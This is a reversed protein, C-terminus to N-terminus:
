TQYLIFAFQSLANAAVENQSLGAKRITGSSAHMNVERGSEFVCSNKGRTDPPERGFPATVDETASLLM